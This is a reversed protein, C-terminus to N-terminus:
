YPTRHTTRIAVNSEGQFLKLNKGVKLMRTNMCIGMQIAQWNKGGENAKIMINSLDIDTGQFNERKYWVSNYVARISIVLLSSLILYRNFGKM